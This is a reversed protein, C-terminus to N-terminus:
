TTTNIQAYFKINKRSELIDETIWTQKTNSLKERYEIYPCAYDLHLLFTDTFTKFQM